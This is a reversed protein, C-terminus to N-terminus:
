MKYKRERKKEDEDEKKKKGYKVKRERSGGLKRGNIKRQGEKKFYNTKKRKIWKNKEQEKGKKGKRRRKRSRIKEMEKDVGEECL